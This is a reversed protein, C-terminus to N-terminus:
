LGLLKGTAARLPSLLLNPAIGLLIVSAALLGILVGSIRTSGPAMETAPTICADAVFMQKLIILYYYLSVANLAVAVIVLWLMGLGHGTAPVALSSAFLTFKAVFGAMPPIGALSILFVAMCCSLGPATKCLGAFHLFSAGGRSQEVLSVVGFGGIVTFAYVIVYFLISSVGGGHPSALGLLIYGANAVASYALLRKVNTQVLAALNGLIISLLAMVALLPAWGAQFDGWSASGGAKALGIGLIKAVVFVGAVKSGSAVLAASSTPAGQYVDPAWLHFPVAAVKFGFGALAMVIGAALLPDMSGKILVKSIQALNTSGTMGYIFSLGFLLFAASISGVLFYKLAAEASARDRKEFATLIYLSLSTLELAIFITLLEESGALLMMGITAFLILALDEPFHTRLRSESAFVATILSLVILIQKVFRGLPDIVITGNMINANESLVSLVIGAALGGAVTVGLLLPRNQSRASLGLGLLIIATALLIAEPALLQLMHLYNVPSM